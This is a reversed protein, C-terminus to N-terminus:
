FHRQMVPHTRPINKLSYVNGSQTNRQTCNVSYEYRRQLSQSQTSSLLDFVKGTPSKKLPPQRGRQKVATLPADKKVKKKKGIVVNGMFEGFSEDSSDKVAIEDEIKRTTAGTSSIAFQGTATKGAFLTQLHKYLPFPKTKFRGAKPHAKILEEWCKDSATPLGTDPDVGFGILQNVVQGYM